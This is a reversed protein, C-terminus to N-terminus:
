EIYDDDMPVEKLSEMENRQLMEYDNRLRRYVETIDNSCILSMLERIIGKVDEAGVKIFSYQTTAIFNNVWNSMNKIISHAQSDEGMSFTSFKTCMQPVILDYLEGLTVDRYDFHLRQFIERIIFPFFKRELDINKVQRSVEQNVDLVYSAMRQAKLEQIPLAILHLQQREITAGSIYCNNLTSLSM